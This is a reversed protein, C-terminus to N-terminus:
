ACPFAIFSDMKFRKFFAEVTEAAAENQQSAVPLAVANNAGGATCALSVALGALVCADSGRSAANLLL